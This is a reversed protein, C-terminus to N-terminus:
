PLALMRTLSKGDFACAHSFTGYNQANTKMMASLLEPSITHSGLDPHMMRVPTGVSKMPMPAGPYGSSPDYLRNMDNFALESTRDYIPSSTPAAAGVFMSPAMGSGFGAPLTVSTPNDIELGMGARQERYLNEFYATNAQIKDAQANYPQMDDAGPDLKIGMLKAYDEVSPFSQQPQQQTDMTPVLGPVFANGFGQSGDLGPLGMPGPQQHPPVAGPHHLGFQAAMNPDLMSDDHMAMDVDDESPSTFDM